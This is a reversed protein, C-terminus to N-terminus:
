VATPGVAEASLCTAKGDDIRWTYMLHCTLKQAPNCPYDRGKHIVKVIINTGNLRREAANGVEYPVHPDVAIEDGNFFFHVVEGTKNIFTINHHANRHARQTQCTKIIKLGIKITGAIGAVAVLASGAIAVIAAATVVEGRMKSFNLMSGGM